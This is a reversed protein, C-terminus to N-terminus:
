GRRRQMLSVGSFIEILLSTKRPADALVAGRRSPTLVKTETSGLEFSGFANVTLVTREIRHQSSARRDSKRGRQLRRAVVFVLLREAVRRPPDAFEALSM